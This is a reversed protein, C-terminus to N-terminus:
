EPKGCAVAVRVPRLDEIGLDDPKAEGVGEVALLAMVGVGAERLAERTGCGDVMGPRGFHFALVFKPSKSVPWLKLGRLAVVGLEYRFDDAGTRVGRGADM